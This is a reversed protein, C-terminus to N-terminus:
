SPISECDSMDSVVVAIGSICILGVATGTGTVCGLLGVVTGTGTDCGGILGVPTGTDGILMFLQGDPYEKLLDSLM